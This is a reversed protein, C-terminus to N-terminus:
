LKRVYQADAEPAFPGGPMDVTWVHLMEPFEAGKGNHDRPGIEHIHWQTLCGGIEPGPMGAKPMVYLAGILVVGHRDTWGYVLSEIQNPDLVASNRRYSDNVYHQARDRGPGGFPQYGDVMARGTGAYRTIAAKTDRVLKDAAAQEEATPRCAGGHHEHRGGALGTRMPGHGTGDAAAHHGAAHREGAESAPDHDIHHQEAAHAVARHTSADAHAAHETTDKPDVIERTVKCFLEGGATPVLHDGATAAQVRPESAIRTTPTTSCGAVALAACAIRIVARQSAM